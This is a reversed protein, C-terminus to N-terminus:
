NMRITQVRCVRKHERWAGRQCEKKCYYASQCRSCKKTTPTKCVACPHPTRPKEWKNWDYSVTGDLYNQLPKEKDHENFIIFKKLQPMKHLNKLGANKFDDWGTKSELGGIMAEENKWVGMTDCNYWHWCDVEITLKKLNPFAEASTFFAPCLYHLHLYVEEMNRVARALIPCIHHAYEYTYANDSWFAQVCLKTVSPPISQLLLALTTMSIRGLTTTPGVTVERLNDMNKLHFATHLMVDNLARDCEGRDFDNWLGVSPRFAAKRIYTCIHPNTSLMKLFAAPDLRAM